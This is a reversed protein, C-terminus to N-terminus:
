PDDQGDGSGCASLVVLRIAGAHSDLLRALRPATIVAPNDAAGWSLGPPEGAAGSAGHGLLPLVSRSGADLAAQWSAEGVEALERVTAGGAEAAARIAAAHEEHPVAGGAASWAFLVGPAPPVPQIERPELGPITYRVQASAHDSLYKGSAGIQIVEWP